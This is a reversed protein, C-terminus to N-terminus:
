GFRWRTSPTTEDTGFGFVASPRIAYVHYPPPGATPAGEAYFAGDRVTVPWDYKDAYARAVRHLETEDGIREATGEVVLDMDATGTTLVCRPDHALNRAKRSAEGACVYLTEDAWVALVPVAHPAGDPCVTSLWYTGGAALRERALSWPAAPGTGAILEQTTPRGYTM